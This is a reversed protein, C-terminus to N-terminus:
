TKRIYLTLYAVEFGLKTMISENILTSENVLYMKDDVKLDITSDKYPVRLLYNLFIANGATRLTAEGITDNATAIYTNNNVEKLTWIRSQEEGDSFTFKEDLTGEGNIWSAKISANFYRIVEGKRNKVIGAAEMDGNFFQKIDFAPKNNQYIAIDVPSCACLIITLCLFYKKM